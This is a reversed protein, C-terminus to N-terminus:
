KLHEVKTEIKGSVPVTSHGTNGVPMARAGFLRLWSSLISDTYKSGDILDTNQDLRTRADPAFFEPFLLKAREQLLDNFDKQCDLIGSSGLIVNKNQDVTPTIEQNQKLRTEKRSLNMPSSFYTTRQPTNGLNKSETGNASNEETSCLSLPLTLAETKGM